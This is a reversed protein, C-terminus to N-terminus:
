ESPVRKRSGHPLVATDACIGRWADTTRDDRRRTKCPNNVVAPVKNAPQEPLELRSLENVEGVGGGCLACTDAPAVM